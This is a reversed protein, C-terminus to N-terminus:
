LHWKGYDRMLRRKHDGIVWNFHILYPSIDPHEFYYKGNPFLNLPLVGFKITRSKCQENLYIQDGWNATKKSRIAVDPDFIRRTAETSKIFMFGSCYEDGNDSQILLDNDGINELLYDMFIPNEYVIDGDTFCVYKHTLLNEYIIRFKNFIIDSWNGKRFSQFNCSKEDDILSCNYNKSSLLEHGKKGICYLRLQRSFKIKELSKLCNLTYDTYGTNTLTCFAINMKDCITSIKTLKARAFEGPFHYLIIDNNINCSSCIEVYKKLFQTDCQLANTPFENIFVKCNPSSEIGRDYVRSVITEFATKIAPCKKFLMIGSNYAADNGSHNDLLYLVNDSFDSRFLINLDGNVLTALDLYLFKKYKDVDFYSFISFKANAIEISQPNMWIDYYVRFKYQSMESQIISFLSFSTIILLNAPPTNTNSNMSAILTKLLEIDNHNFVCLYIITM